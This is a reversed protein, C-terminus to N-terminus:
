GFSYAKKEYIIGVRTNVCSMHCFGGANPCRTCGMFILELCFAITSKFVDINARKNIQMAATNCKSFYFVRDM